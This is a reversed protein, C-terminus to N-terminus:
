KSDLYDAKWANIAAVNGSLLVEPVKWGHHDAPRTYSPPSPMGPKDHSEAIASTENGLVNPLLRSIADIMVLAAPEGGTMVFDGISIEEDVLYDAVRQDVDGYHGCIIILSEYSALRHADTQIFRKGRASLLITRNKRPKAIAISALAKEIPEIKMVMGAGGGFPRDDTTKHKDNAFRRLDILNVNIIQNAIARHVISSLLPSEFYQPFTTLIHFIM